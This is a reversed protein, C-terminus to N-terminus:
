RLHAKITALWGAPPVSRGPAIAAEVIRASAGLVFAAGALERLERNQKAAAVTRILSEFRKRLEGHSVGLEGLLQELSTLDAGSPWAGLGYAIVVVPDETASAAAGDSVRETKLAQVAERMLEGGDAVGGPSSITESAAQYGQAYVAKLQVRWRRASARLGGLASYRRRARMTEKGRAAMLGRRSVGGQPLLLALLQDLRGAFLSRPQSYWLLLILVQIFILWGLAVSPLVLLIVV